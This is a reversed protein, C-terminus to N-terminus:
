RGAHTTRHRALSRFWQNPIQPAAHIQSRPHRRTASSADVDIDFIMARGEIGEAKLLSPHLEFIRGISKDNWFVEATRVPHEFSQAEAARLRIGPFLCELVRKM